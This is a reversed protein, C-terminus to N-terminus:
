MTSSVDEGFVNEQAVTVKGLVTPASDAGAGMVAPAMLMLAWNVALQLAPESALV